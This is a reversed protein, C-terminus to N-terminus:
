GDRRPKRRTAPAPLTFRFTSGQGVSSEVGVSGDLRDVIRAVISLGLGHGTAHGEQLRTFPQFLRVQDEAPIGAGNDRVWFDVKGDPQLTAGLEVRPPRGGYKIANSIYNAWVEEIWPAYGLTAPWRPPLCIEAQHAEIMSGLRQLARRVIPGMQLREVHVDTKRLQALLLLEDIISNMRYATSGINRLHRRFDAEPLESYRQELVDAYGSIISLPAKLDHAVTHAFADMEANQAELDATRRRLTDVLRANDMAIAASAALSEIFAIDRPGFHGVETAVVEIAGLTNGRIALPVAVLTRLARGSQTLPFQWGRPDACLDPVSLPRGSQLVWAAPGNEPSLRRGQSERSYDGAVHACVLEGTTADSVWLAAGTAGLMANAEKLVSDLTKDLEMTSTLAHAAQNLFALRSSTEALELEARHRVLAMKITTRLVENDLPKVLYGYPQADAARGLIAEGTFATAFVVPIGLRRRIRGAAEIGDVRGQLQIDMLVLSPLLEAAREVAEEGSSVVSPVQYGFSELRQKLDLAVISEDEAILITVPRGRTEEPPPGNPQQAESPTM